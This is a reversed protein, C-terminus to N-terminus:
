SNITLLATSLKSCLLTQGHSLGTFYLMKHNLFETQEKYELSSHFGLSSYFFFPMSLYQFPCPELSTNYPPLDLTKGKLRSCSHVKIKIEERKLTHMEFTFFHIISNSNELRYGETQRSYINMKIFLDTINSSNVGQYRFHIKNMKLIQIWQKQLQGMKQIHAM